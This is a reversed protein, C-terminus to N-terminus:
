ISYSIDLIIRGFYAGKFFDYSSFDVAGSGGKPLAELDLLYVRNAPLCGESVYLLAYRGDDTVQPRNTSLKHTRAEPLCSHLCGRRKVHSTELILCCCSECFRNGLSPFLAATRKSTARIANRPLNRNSTSRM